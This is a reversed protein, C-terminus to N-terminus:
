AEIFGLTGLYDSKGIEAGGHRLLAYATTLHFYFNPIQRGWLYEEAPLAKGPRSPLRVLTQATTREFHAATLTQLYALCKAIRGHLDAFTTENDEHRPAETGSLNAATAKATDCAIRVQAAFPLMDPFLRTGFYNNVDFERKEAFKEAKTLVADLNQLSRAFQKVAHHYM